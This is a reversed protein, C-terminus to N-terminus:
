LQGASRKPLGDAAAVANWLRSAKAKAASAEGSAADGAKKEGGSQPKHKQGCSGKSAAAWAAYHTDAAASATWGAQLASVLEAGSSVQDTQLGGLETILQQRTTAAATLNQQAQDLNQCHEIDSVAGIVAGRSNSATALLSSLAQAESSAGGSSASPNAASASSQAGASGTSHAAAPAASGGGSLAAAMGIGLVVCGGVVALAIARPSFRRSRGQEPYDYEPEPQYGGGPPYGYGQPQPQQFQTQGYQGQQAQGYAPQGPQPAGFGQPPPAQYGGGFGPQQMPQTLAQTPPQQGPPQQPGPAAPFPPLFQTSAEPAGQPPMAQTAPANGYYEPQGGM